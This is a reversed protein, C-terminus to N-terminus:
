MSMLRLLHAQSAPGGVKINSMQILVENNSRFEGAFVYCRTLQPYNNLNEWRLRPNEIEIYGPREKNADPGGNTVYLIIDRGAFNKNGQPPIQIPPDVSTVEKCYVNKTNDSTYMNKVRFGM